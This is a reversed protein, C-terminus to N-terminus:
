MGSAACTSTSCVAVGQSVFTHQPSQKLEQHAASRALTNRVGRQRVIKIIETCVPAIRPTLEDPASCAIYSLPTIGKLDSPLVLGKIDLISWFTRHRGLRGIFMGLEFLVNDRMAVHASGRSHVTDEFRAVLSGFDSDEMAEELVELPYGSAWFVGNTWVVPLADRQM